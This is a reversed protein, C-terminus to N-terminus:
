TLIRDYISKIRGARSAWNYTSAILNPNEKASASYLDYNQLIHNIKTHWEDLSSINYVYTARESGLVEYLSSSFSTIIPKGTRLYDFLKLPSMWDFSDISFKSISLGRQYPMLLIHCHAAITLVQPHPLAGILFVNPPLQTNYLYTLSDGLLIFDCNPLKFALSLLIEIGRGQAFTGAYFLKYKTSTLLNSLDPSTEADPFIDLLQKSALDNLELPLSADHDILALGNLYSNYFMQRLSDSIFIKSVSHSSVITNLFLSQIRGKEISHVEYIHKIRLLALIFSFYLNRSYISDSSDRLIPSFLIRKAIFFFGALAIFFISSSLIPIGFFSPRCLRHSQSIISTRFKPGSCAYFYRSSSYLTALYTYQYLSQISNARTSPQVSSSVYVLM